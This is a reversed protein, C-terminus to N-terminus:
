SPIAKPRANLLLPRFIIVILSLLSIASILAGYYFSKPSFEFRVLHQGAPLSVGRLAYDARFLHAPQGDISVQWGPYYPDSTVLFSSANSSTRVEMTTDSLHEVLATANADVQQPNFALPEEILAIKSPDFILGDPMKSTKISNLAEEPKVTSVEKVLWARPMVRLNEYILAEDTEEVPRWSNTNSLLPSIPKSSKTSDNILSVKELIMAGGKGVWEVTISKIDKAGTLPLIALYRHGECPESYM